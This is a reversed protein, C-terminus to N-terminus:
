QILRVRRDIRSKCGANNCFQVQALLEGQLKPSRFGSKPGRGIQFSLLPFLETKNKPDKGKNKTKQIKAYLTNMDNAFAGVIKEVNTTAQTKSNTMTITM